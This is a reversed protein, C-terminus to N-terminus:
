TNTILLNLNMITSLFISGPDVGQENGPPAAPYPDFNGTIGEIVCGRCESIKLTEASLHLSEGKRRLKRERHRNVESLKVHKVDLSSGSTVSIKKGNAYYYSRFNADCEKRGSHGRGSATVHELLLCSETPM